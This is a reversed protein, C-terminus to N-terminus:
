QTKGDPPTLTNKHIKLHPCMINMVNLNKPTAFNVIKVGNENTTEHLTVNGARIFTVEREVKATFKELLIKM